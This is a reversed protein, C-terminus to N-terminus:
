RKRGRGILQRHRFVTVDSLEAEGLCRDLARRSVPRDYAASFVDYTDLLARERLQQESLQPFVCRYNAVPVAYRLKSGIRPLRLLADSIAFLTRRPMRRTLPRLWYKPWLANLWSAPYADVALLGDRALMAPLSLLAARRDPTHQLGGLCWAVDFAADRFPLRCIDAQVADFQADAGHNSWAADVASSYDVAIVRAGAALAVEAFRGAGCVADLVTKGALDSTRVGLTLLLRDHSITTGSHSDLQTRPFRNWQFGFNNAYNESPVFRPVFQVIPYSRGCQECHLTGREIQEHERRADDLRLPAHRCEPCCLLDLLRAHM